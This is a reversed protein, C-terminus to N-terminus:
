GEFLRIIEEPTEDFDEPIEVQDEYGGLKRPKEPSYPVLKAV